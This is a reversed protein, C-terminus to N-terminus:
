CGMSTDESASAHARAAATSMLGIQRAPISAAAAQNMPSLSAPTGIHSGFVPPPYSPSCASPTFLLWPASDVSAAIEVKCCACRKDVTGCHSRHPSLEDRTAPMPKRGVRRPDDGPQEDRALLPELM